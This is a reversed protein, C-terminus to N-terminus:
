DMTTMLCTLARQRHTDTRTRYRQNLEKSPMTSAERLHRMRRVCRYYQENASVWMRAKDGVTFTQEVAEMSPLSLLYPLGKQKLNYATSLHSLGALVM